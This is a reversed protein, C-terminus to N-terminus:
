LKARTERDHTKKTEKFSLEKKRFHKGREGRTKNIKRELM